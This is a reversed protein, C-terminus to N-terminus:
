KVAASMKVGVRYVVVFVLVVVVMLEFAFNLLYGKMGSIYFSQEVHGEGDDYTAIIDAELMQPKFSGWVHIIVESNPPIEIPTQLYIMKTNSDYRLNKKLNAEEDTSFYDSGIAWATLEDTNLHKFKVGKLTKSSTNRLIFKKSETTRILFDDVSHSEVSLTDQSLLYSQIKAYSESILTPYHLREAEVTIRLDSPSIINKYAAIFLVVFFVIMTLLAYYPKVAKNFREVFLRM